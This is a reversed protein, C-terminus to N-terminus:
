VQGASGSLVGAILVAPQKQPTLFMCGAICFEGVGMHLVCFEPSQVSEGQAGQRSPRSSSSSSNVLEPPVMWSRPERAHGEGDPARCSPRPRPPHHAPWWGVINNVAWAGRDAVRTDRSSGRMALVGFTRTSYPGVVGWLRVHWRGERAESVGCYAVPADGIDVHSARAQRHQLAIGQDWRREHRRGLPSSPSGVEILVRSTM